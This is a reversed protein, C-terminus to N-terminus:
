LDSPSFDIQKRKWVVITRVCGFSLVTMRLVVYRKWVVITRVCSDPTSQDSGATDDLKWVVITRVCRLCDHRPFYARHLKWVVITRVCSARYGRFAKALRQRKWVV